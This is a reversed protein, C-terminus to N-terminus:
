NAKPVNQESLGISYRDKLGEFMEAYLEIAEEEGGQIFLSVFRDLYKIRLNECLEKAEPDVLMAEMIAHGNENYDNLFDQYEPKNPLIYDKIYEFTSMYQNDKDIGTILAYATMVYYGKGSISIKELRAKESSSRGMVEAWLPCRPMTAKVYDYKSRSNSCGFEGDRTPTTGMYRCSVCEYCYDM